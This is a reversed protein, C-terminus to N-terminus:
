SPHHSHFIFLIIGAKWATVACHPVLIMSNEEFIMIIEEFIMSNEEFIM